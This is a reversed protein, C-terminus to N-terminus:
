QQPLTSNEFTKKRTEIRHKISIQKSKRLFNEALNDFSYDAHGCSCIKQFFIKRQSFFNTPWEPTQYFNNWVKPLFNGVRNDFNREIDRSCCKSTIVEKFPLYSQLSSTKPTKSDLYKIKTRIFIKLRIQQKFNKQSWKRIKLLSLEAHKYEEIQTNLTVEHTFKNKEFFKYKMSKEQSQSM